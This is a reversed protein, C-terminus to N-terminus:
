KTTNNIAQMIKNYNEAKKRVSDTVPYRKELFSATAWESISNVNNLCFQLAELLDNRQNLLERPTLGTENAVNFSEAILEANAKTENVETGFVISIHCSPNSELTVAMRVDNPYNFFPAKDAVIKGETINLNKM